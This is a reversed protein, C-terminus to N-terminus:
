PGEGTEEEDGEPKQVQHVLLSLVRHRRVEEVTLSLGQYDFRDGKTPIKGLKETVWGGVTVATSDEEGLSFFACFKDLSAGGLVRFVDASLPAIDQRAQENEDWIEGVLEELIDEVTVIGITGGYEDVIVAMHLKNQQLQALLQSIKVTKTIFLVPRIAQQLTKTGPLLENHYDKELLVGLISDLSGQYVPLRSHGTARYVEGIEGLSDAIDVAHIDVRPTAIDIAQLDDFYIVSRIMKEEQQNIGGEQRVEGVYTLLEQETAASSAQIRFLRLLLRKWASFLANVPTLIFMFVQLFPAAFMAFSEPSEKALTKPSIEGFVLVLVTMCITSLTVGLNGFWKVFLVTAMSSSAINVINNGILITSLLNDYKERLVLARAAKKSGQGSLSKLRIENLASYSTESASFFASLVLMVGLAILYPLSAADEMNATM